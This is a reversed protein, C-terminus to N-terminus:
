HAHAEKLDFPWTLTDHPEPLKEPRAAPELDDESAQSKMIPAWLPFKRLGYIRHRGGQGLLGYDEM